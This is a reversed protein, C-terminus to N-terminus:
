GGMSRDSELGFEVTRSDGEFVGGVGAGAGVVLVGACQPARQLGHAVLGRVVGPEGYEQVGRDEDDECDLAVACQVVVVPLHGGGTLRERVQLGGVGLYGGGAEGFEGPVTGGVVRHVPVGEGQVLDQGVVGFLDEGFVGPGGEGGGESGGFGSAV